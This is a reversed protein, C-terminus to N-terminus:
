QLGPNLAQANGQAPLQPLTSGLVPQGLSIASSIPTNSNDIVQGQTGFKAVFEPDDGLVPAPQCFPSCDFSKWGKGALLVRKGSNSTSNGVQIDAEMIKKGFEDLIIVNTVGYGRGVIFVMTPSHISIDAIAPNGIVITGAPSPIQLMKTKNIEVNYSQGYAAMPLLTSLSLGMLGILVRSISTLQRNFM